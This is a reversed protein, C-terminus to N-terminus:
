KPRKQEILWDKNTALWMLLDQLREKMVQADTVGSLFFRHYPWDAMFGVHASYGPGVYGGFVTPVYSSGSDRLVTKLSNVRKLVLALLNIPDGNKLNRVNIKRRRVTSGNLERLIFSAGRFDPPGFNDPFPLTVFHWIHGLRNTNTYIHERPWMGVSKTNKFSLRQAIRLFDMNMAEIREEPTPLNYPSDILERKTPAPGTKKGLRRRVLRMIEAETAVARGNVDRVYVTGNVTSIDGEGEQVAFVTVDKEDVKVTEIDYVAIPSIKNRLVSSIRTKLTDSMAYDQINRTKEEVGVILYGGRTNAFSAIHKALEWDKQEVIDRPMVDPDPIAEKAKFDVTRKEWTCIMEKIEHPTAISMENNDTVWFLRPMKKTKM